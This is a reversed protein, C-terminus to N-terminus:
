CGYHFTASAPNTPPPSPNLTVCSTGWPSNWSFVSNTRSSSPADYYGMTYQEDSFSVPITSGNSQEEQEPGASYHCSGNDIEGLNITSGTDGSIGFGYLTGTNATFDTEGMIYHGAQTTDAYIYSEMSDGPSMTQPPSSVFWEGTSSCTSTSFSNYAVRWSPTPNILNANDYLVGIQLWHAGNSNLVDLIQFLDTSSSTIKQNTFDSTEKWESTTDGNTTDSNTSIGNDIVGMPTMYVGHVIHPNSGAPGLYDIGSYTSNWSMMYVWGPHASTIQALSVRLKEAHMPVMNRAHETAHVLQPNITLIIIIFIAM